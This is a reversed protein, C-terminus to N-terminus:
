STGEKEAGYTALRLRSISSCSSHRYGGQGVPDTTASHDLRVIASHDLRVIASSRKMKETKKSGALSFLRAWGTHAGGVALLLARM